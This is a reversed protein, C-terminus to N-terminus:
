DAPGRAGFQQLVEVLGRMHEERGISIRLGQPIGYGQIERVILGKDRLASFAARATEPDPFLALIFNGQSPIVRIANSALSHTLWDRWRANYDRLRATFETDRAAAAAGMQGAVSVNFPGRIRNVADVIHAPGYMWGIRLGALGYLKSFTRTMVVNVRTEVLREGADFDDADVYDAYAGDLLLIVDDPLGEVLRDATRRYIRFQKSVHEVKLVPAGHAIHATM